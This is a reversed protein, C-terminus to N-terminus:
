IFVEGGGAAAKECASTIAELGSACNRQVTVAPVSAPIGSRLAIVRAINATEAPQCVCGFITHDVIEPDIGTRALLASTVHHGLDAASLSALSTGARCFPTRVGDIVVMPKMKNFPDLVRFSKGTCTGPRSQPPSRCDEGRQPSPGGGPTRENGGGYAM